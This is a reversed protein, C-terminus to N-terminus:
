TFGLAGFRWTSMERPVSGYLQVEYTFTILMYLFACVIFRSPGSVPFSRFLDPRLRSFDSLRHIYSRQAQPIRPCQATAFGPSAEIGAVVVDHGLVTLLRSHSLGSIIHIHRINICVDSISICTHSFSLMCFFPSCFFLAWFKVSLRHYRCSM